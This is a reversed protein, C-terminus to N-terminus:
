SVERLNFLSYTQILVHILSLNDHKKIDSLYRQLDEELIYPNDFNDSDLYNFYNLNPDGM